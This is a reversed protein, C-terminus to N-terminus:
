VRARHISRARARSADRSILSVLHTGLSNWNRQLTSALRQEAKDGGLGLGHALAFLLISAGDDPIGPQAPHLEDCTGYMATSKLVETDNQKAIERQVSSNGLYAVRGSLLASRVISPTRACYWSTRPLSTAVVRQDVQQFKLIEHPVRYDLVAGHFGSWELVGSHLIEETRDGFDGGLVVADAESLPIGLRQLLLHLESGPSPQAGASVPSYYHAPRFVFTLELLGGAFEARSAGGLSKLCDHCSSDSRLPALIGNSWDSRLFKSLHEHGSPAHTNKPQTDVRVGDTLHPSFACLLAEYPGRLRSDGLFVIRMRKQRLAYMCTPSYRPPVCRTGAALSATWRWHQAPVLRGDAGSYKSTMLPCSSYGPWGHGHTLQVWGGSRTIMDGDGTTLNCRSRFSSLSECSEVRDHVHVGPRGSRGSGIISAPPVAPLAARREDLLYAAAATALCMAAVFLALCSTTM